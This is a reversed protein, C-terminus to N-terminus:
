AVLRAGWALSESLLRLFPSAGDGVPLLWVVLLATQIPVWVSALRRGLLGGERATSWTGAVMVVFMAVGLGMLLVASLKPDLLADSLVAAHAPGVRAGMLVAGSVASLAVLVNWSLLARWALRAVPNSASATTPAM